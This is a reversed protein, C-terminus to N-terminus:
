SLLTSLIKGHRHTLKPHGGGHMEAVVWRQDGPGPPWWVGWTRSWLYAIGPMKPLRCCPRASDCREPSSVPHRTWEGGPLNNDSGSWLVRSDTPALIRRASNEVSCGLQALFRRIMGMVVRSRSVEGQGAVPGESAPFRDSRVANPLLFWM